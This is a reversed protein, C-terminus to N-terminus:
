LVWEAGYQRPGNPPALDQYVGACLTQIYAGALAIPVGDGEKVEAKPGHFLTALYKLRRIESIPNKQDEVAPRQLVDGGFRLRPLRIYTEAGVTLRLRWEGYRGRKLSCKRCTLANLALLRRRSMHRLSPVFPLIGNRQNAM